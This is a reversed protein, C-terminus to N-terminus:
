GVQVHDIMKGGDELSYFCMEIRNRRLNEDWHFLGLQLGHFAHYRIQSGPYAPCSQVDYVWPHGGMGNLIYPITPHSGSPANARNRILREYAHQHGYLVADFSMSEYELDMWEAPADHQASAFTPHHFVALRITEGKPRAAEATLWALQEEYQTNLSSDLKVSPPRLNSNLAFLQM